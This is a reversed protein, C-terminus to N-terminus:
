KKNALVLIKVNLYSEFNKSSQIEWNTSDILNNISHNKGWGLLIKFPEVCKFLFHNNCSFEDLVVLLGEKKVVRSVERLIAKPNPAVRLVFTTLSSDFYNDEFPLQDTDVLHLKVFSSSLKKKAKKLMAESIDTGHVYCGKPYFPLNLGTGIGIELIKNDNEIKLYDIVKQRNFSFMSDLISDYIKAWLFYILKLYKKMM